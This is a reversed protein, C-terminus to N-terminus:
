RSVVPKIVAKEENLIVARTEEPGPIRRNDVPMTDSETLREERECIVAGSEWVIM